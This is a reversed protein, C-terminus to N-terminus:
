NVSSYPFLIFIVPPPPPYPLPLALAPVAMCLPSHLGAYVKHHHCLVKLFSISHEYGVVRNENCLGCPVQKLLNLIEHCWKM